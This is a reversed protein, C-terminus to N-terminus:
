LSEVAVSATACIDLDVVIADEDPVRGIFSLTFRLPGAGLWAGVDLPEGRWGISTPTEEARVYALERAELSSGEPPLLVARAEEIFGLHPTPDVATVEVSTLALDTTTVAQLEPPLGAQPDFAFDHSVALADGFQQQLQGRVERPIEFRQAPLHQCVAQARAELWTIDGCGLLTLTAVSLLPLRM